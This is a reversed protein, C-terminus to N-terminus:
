EPRELGAIMRANEAQLKASRAQQALMEISEQSDLRDLFWDRDVEVDAWRGEFVLGDLIPDNPSLEIQGLDLIRLFREPGNHDKITGRSVNATMTAM